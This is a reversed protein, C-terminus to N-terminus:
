FLTQTLLDVTVTISTPTVNIHITKEKLFSLTCTCSYIPTEQCFCPAILLQIEYGKGM